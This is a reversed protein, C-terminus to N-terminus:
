WKHAPCKEERLATKCVIVCGCGFKLTKTVKDYVTKRNMLQEANFNSEDQWINDTDRYCSGDINLKCGNCIEIRQKQLLAIEDNVSIRGSKIENATYCGEVVKLLNLTKINIM